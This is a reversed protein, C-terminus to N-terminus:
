IIITSHFVTKFFSVLHEVPYYIQDLINNIWALIGGDQCHLNYNLMPLDDFLRNITRAKSIQDALILLSQRVPVPFGRWTAMLASLYSVTRMVKDKGNSSQLIQACFQVKSSM